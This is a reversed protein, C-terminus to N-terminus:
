SAPCRWAIVSRWIGLAPQAELSNRSLRKETQPRKILGSRVCCCCLLAAEGVLDKMPVADFDHVMHGCVADSEDEGIRGIEYVVAIATSARNLIIGIVVPELRRHQFGIAHQLLVSDSDHEVAPGPHVREEFCLAACTKLWDTVDDKALAIARLAPEEAILM